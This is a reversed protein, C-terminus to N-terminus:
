AAPQGEHGPRADRERSCYHERRLLAGVLIAMMRDPRSRERRFDSPAPPAPLPSLALDPAEVTAGYRLVTTDRGERVATIRMEYAGPRLRLTPGDLVSLHLSATTSPGARDLIIEGGGTRPAM